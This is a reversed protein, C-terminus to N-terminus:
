RTMGEEEAVLAVLAAVDAPAIRALAPDLDGLRAMDARDAAAQNEILKELAAIRRRREMEKNYAHLVATVELYRPQDVKRHWYARLRAAPVGCCRSARDIWAALKTEPTKEIM